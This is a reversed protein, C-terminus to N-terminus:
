ITYHLLLDLVENGNRIEFMINAYIVPCPGLGEWCRNMLAYSTQLILHLIVKANGLSAAIM